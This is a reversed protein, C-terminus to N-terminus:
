SASYEQLSVVMRPHVICDYTKDHSLTQLTFAVLGKHVRGKKTGQTIVIWDPRFAILVQQEQGVVKYPIIRLREGWTCQSYISLNDNNLSTHLLKSVDAPIDELFQVASLIMVPTNTFPEYLQNGTDILGSCEVFYDKIKISVQVIGEQLMNTAELETFVKKSYIWAAPFGIMIFLWSVPDGYSKTVYFIGTDEAIFKYSFLFHVGLLIGGSLFTVFYFLLCAKFYIKLRHYGFAVIVMVLSVVIKIVVSNALNYYPSFSLVILLSGIFGGIIIRLHKVKKKLILSTWYLLLCDFCWNLLIILDIYAILM